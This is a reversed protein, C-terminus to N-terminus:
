CNGNRKNSLPIAVERYSLPLEVSSLCAISEINWATSIFCPSSHISLHLVLKLLHAVSNRSPRPKMVHTNESSTLRNIVMVLTAKSQLSNKEEQHLSRTHNSLHCLLILDTM